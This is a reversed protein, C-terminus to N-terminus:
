ANDDCARIYPLTGPPSQHYRLCRAALRREGEYRKVPAVTCFAIAVVILWAQVRGSLPELDGSRAVVVPMIAGICAGALSEWVTHLSPSIGSVTVALGVVVGAIVWGLLRWRPSGAFVVWACTPYLAVARLAHGSAGVFVTLADRAHWVDDVFRTAYGIGLVVLTLAVLMGARWWAGRVAMAIMAICLLAGAPFPAGMEFVM